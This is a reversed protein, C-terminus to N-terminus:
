GLALQLAAPKCETFLNAQPLLCRHTCLWAVAHQLTSSGSPEAIYLLNKVQNSVPNEEGKPTPVAIKCKNSKHAPAQSASPGLTGGAAVVQVAQISLFM